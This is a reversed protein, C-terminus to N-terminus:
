TISWDTTTWRLTWHHTLFTLLLLILPCQVSPLPYESGRSRTQTVTATTKNIPVAENCYKVDCCSLCSQEGDIQRCGVTRKTCEYAKACKKNVMISEGQSNMVHLTQCFPKDSPCPRDIAYRNCMYNNTVNVCTYCTLTGDDSNDEQDKQARVLTSKFALALCCLLLTWRLLSTFGFAGVQHSQIM